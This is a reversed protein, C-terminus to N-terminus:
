QKDGPDEPQTRKKETRRCIALCVQKTATFDSPREGGEGEPHCLRLVTGSVKIIGPIRIEEDEMKYVIDIQKPDADHRITFTGAMLVSGKQLCEIRNGSFRLSLKKSNDWSGSGGEWVRECVWTGEVVRVTDNSSEQKVLNLNCGALFLFVLILSFAIKVKM